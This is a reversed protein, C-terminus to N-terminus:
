MHISLFFKFPSLFHCTNFNYFILLNRFVENLSISDHLTVGILKRNLNIISNLRIIICYITTFTYNTDKLTAPALVGSGFDNLSMDKAM